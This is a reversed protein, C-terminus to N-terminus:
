SLKTEDPQIPFMDLELAQHQYPKGLRYWRSLTRASSYDDATIWVDSTHIQPRDGMRPHGHVAGVLCPLTMKAWSWNDLIPAEDFGPLATPATGARIAKLDALLSEVRKIEEDIPRGTVAVM